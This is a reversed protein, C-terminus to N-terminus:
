TRSPQLFVMGIAAVQKNGLSDTTSLEHYYKSNPTLSKTDSGVISVEAVENSSGSVTIGGGSKSKTFHNSDSDSSDAFAYLIENFGSLDDSDVETFKITYDKDIFLEIDQEKKPPM